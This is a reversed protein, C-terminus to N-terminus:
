DESADLEAQETISDLFTRITLLRGDLGRDDEPSRCSKRLRGLRRRFRVPLKRQRVEDELKRNNTAHGIKEKVEGKM